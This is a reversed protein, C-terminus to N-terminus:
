PAEETPTQYTAAAAAFGAALTDLLSHATAVGSTDTEMAKTLKDFAIAAITQGERRASIPAEVLEHEEYTNDKGGFSYVLYPGDLSDLVKDANATMKQALRARAAAMDFERKVTATATQAKGPFSLGEAKAWKSIRAPSFGLETAIARCGFGIDFLRRAEGAHKDTFTQPM